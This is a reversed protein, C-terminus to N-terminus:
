KEWILISDTETGYYIRVIDVEKNEKTRGKLPMAWKMFVNEERGNNTPILARYCQIYLSGDEKVVIQERLVKKHDTVELSIEINDELERIVNAQVVSVPIMRFAIRTSGWYSGALIAVILTAIVIGKIFSTRLLKKWTSAMNRIIKDDEDTYAESDSVDGDGKMKIYVDKCACCESLHHEILEKSEVSCVEDCYLPLLDRIVECSIKEM